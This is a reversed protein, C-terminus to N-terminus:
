IISLQEKMEKINRKRQLEQDYDMLQDMFGDNPRIVGRRKKVLSYAAQFEMEYLTMIYGIVITASRSVGAMCHVLVNRGQTRNEHIFEFCEEFFKDIRFYPHDNAAITKHNQLVWSPYTLYSASAAVTLVSVIENKKLYHHDQAANIDGLLLGGLGGLSPLIINVSKPPKTTCSTFPSNPHFALNM